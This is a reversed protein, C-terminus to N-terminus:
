QREGKKLRKRIRKWTHWTQPIKRTIAQHNAYVAYEVYLKEKETMALEGDPQEFSVCHLVERSPLVGPM